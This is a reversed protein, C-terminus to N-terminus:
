GRDMCMSSNRRVIMTSFYHLDKGQAEHVESYVHEEPLGCREVLIANESLGTEELLKLLMDMRRHVKMLVTTESSELIERLNERSFAAPVITITENGLGLPQIASASCASMASIGPIVEVRAHRKMRCVAAHLYFATSYIAPDGITPFAVDIGRDIFSLVKKAAHTWAEKVESNQDEASREAYVKKMPFHLEIVEKSGMDVRARATALASSNGNATGKPAIIVQAKTLADVARYTMLDPSGPGVGVLYLCGSQQNKNM